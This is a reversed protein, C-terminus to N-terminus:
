DHILYRSTYLVTSCTLPTVPRKSIVGHSPHSESVPLSETVKRVSTKVATALRQIITQIIFLKADSERVLYTDYLMRGHAFHRHFFALQTTAKNWQRKGRRQRRCLMSPFILENPEINEGTLATKVIWLWRFLSVSVCSAPAHM